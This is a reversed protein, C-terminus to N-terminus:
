TVKQIELLIEEVVKLSVSFTPTKRTPKTNSFTRRTLKGLATTAKDHQALERLLAPLFLFNPVYAEFIGDEVAAKLDGSEYFEKWRLLVKVLEQLGQEDFHLQLSAAVDRRTGRLSATKINSTKTLEKLSCSSFEISSLLSGVSDALMSMSCSPAREELRQFKKLLEGSIFDEPPPLVVHKTKRPKKPRKQAKGDDNIREILSDITGRTEDRHDQLKQELDEGAEKFKKQADTFRLGAMRQQAEIRNLQEQYKKLPQLEKIRGEGWRVVAERIEKAETESLETPSLQNFQEELADIKKSFKPGVEGRVLVETMDRLIEHLPELVRTHVTRETGTILAFLMGQLRFLGLAFSSRLREDM